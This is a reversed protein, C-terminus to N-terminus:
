FIDSVRFKALNDIENDRYNDTHSVIVLLVIEAGKVAFWVRPFQNPRLGSKPIVLEVKWISWVANQSIRHIKGPSIIQRPEIPHFQVQCLRKFDDIGKEINVFRRKLKATEKDFALHHFFNIM